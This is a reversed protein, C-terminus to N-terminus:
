PELVLSYDERLAEDYTGTCLNFAVLVDNEVFIEFHWMGRRGFECDGSYGCSPCPTAYGSAVVRRQGPFGYVLSLRSPLRKLISVDGWDIRAGLRVQRAEPRGFKYQLPFDHLLVGCKPCSIDVLLEDFGAM